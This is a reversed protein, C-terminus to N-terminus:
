SARMWASGLGGVIEKLEEDNAYLEVVAPHELLAKSLSSIAGFGEGLSALRTGVDRCVRREQGSVIEIQEHQILTGVVQEVFRELFPSAM